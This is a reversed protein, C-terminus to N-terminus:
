QDIHRYYRPNLFFSISILCHLFRLVKTLDRSNDTLHIDILYESEGLLIGNAKILDTNSKQEVVTNGQEPKSHPDHVETITIMNAKGADDIFSKKDFGSKDKQIEISYIILIKRRM